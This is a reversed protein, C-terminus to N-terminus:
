PMKGLITELDSGVIARYKAADAKANDLMRDLRLAQEAGIGVAMMFVGALRM